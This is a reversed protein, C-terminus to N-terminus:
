DPWRGIFFPNSEQQLGRWSEVMTKLERCISTREDGSLSPWRDELTNGHVLEMYLFTQDGDVRWGYLEPTPVRIKMHKKFFRLCQGEAITIESGYKVLLGQEEFVVPPSRQTQLRRGAQVAQQRVEDPSPLRAETKNLFFSSDVFDISDGTPLEALRVLMNCVQDQRIM